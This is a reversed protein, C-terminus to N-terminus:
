YRDLTSFYGSKTAFILCSVSLIDVNNFNKKAQRAHTEASKNPKRITNTMCNYVTEDLGIKKTKRM